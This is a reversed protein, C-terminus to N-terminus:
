YPDARAKLKDPAQLYPAVNTVIVQIEEPTLSEIELFRRWADAPDADSGYLMRDLGIQRIRAAIEPMSKANAYYPLGALDFYVNRTAPDNARFAEAFTRLVDASYSEGGWLHAVQITVDPAATVLQELFIDADTAGFNLKPHDPVLATRLHVLIPMRHLNARAFVARVKRLHEPSRLYVQSANFHLKLGRFHGSRACRDLETLAYNRLPNFSCFAILRGPFRAVQAATWDNERRVKAYADSVPEPRVSDYYYGNSLIVAKKTGLVELERIKDAAALPKKFPPPPEQFVYTESAIRWDGAERVLMLESFGFRSDFATGEMYYGSIKAANGYRAVAVPVIRYPYDSISWKVHGAVAEAGTAFGRTGGTFFTAQSTYLSKLKDQDARLRNRSEILAALDAPLAIAPLLPPALLEASEPSLLHVHHDAVPVVNRGAEAPATLAAASCPVISAALLVVFRVSVGVISVFGDRRVASSRM